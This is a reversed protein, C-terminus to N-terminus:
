QAEKGKGIDSSQELAQRSNFNDSEAPNKIQDARAHPANVFVIEYAIILPQNLIVNAWKILEM